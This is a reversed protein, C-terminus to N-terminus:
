NVHAADFVIGISGSKALVPRSGNMRADSPTQTYPETKVKKGKAIQYSLAKMQTIYDKHFIQKAYPYHGCFIDTIGFKDMLQEMRVCSKYFTMMPVHPKLQLWIFGSGFSDGTFAAHISPDFFAVSGPTHGPFDYATVVRGGGLNFQQGDSLWHYNGTFRPNHWVATDARNMWVDSFCQINGAHDIHGHTLVVTVPKSTLDLIVHDLNTPKCGTDILLAGTTGELLYMTTKDTTEIIWTGKAMWTVTLDANNYVVQAMATAAVCLMFLFSFIKKM